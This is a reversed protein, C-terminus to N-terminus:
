ERRKRKERGKEEEEKKGERRRIIKRTKEREQTCRERKRVKEPGFKHTFVWLVALLFLNINAGRIYDEPLVELNSCFYRSLKAVM